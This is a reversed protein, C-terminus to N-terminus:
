RTITVEPDPQREPDPQHELNQQQAANPCAKPDPQDTVDAPFFGSDDFADSNHPYIGTARFGATINSNTFSKTFAIGSLEAMEYISIYRSPHCRLWDDMAANLYRKLPGYVSRDLPQLRHSTHPPLTLLIVNNEKCFEISQISIHSSHNDLILLIPESSTPKTHSVFFPLYDNTFIDSNMYGTKCAVGKSGAAARNLFHQKVNVRPFIYFPPLSNGIANIACCMTVLEGREQSATAGVQKKRLVSVVRGPNQVTTVGTEDLNYINQPSIQTRFCYLM